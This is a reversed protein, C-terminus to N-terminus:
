SNLLYSKQWSWYGWIALLLFIFYLLATPYIGSYLSMFVYLINVIMWIFWTDLYKEALMWQAILSLSTALADSYKLYFNPNDLVFGISGVCFILMFAFTLYMKQPFYSIKLKEDANKGFIWLYIGWFSIVIFFFQLMASAYLKIDWFVKAYFLAGLIAFLWAWVNQRTNLWVCILSTIFGFAEFINQFFYSFFYNIIQQFNM